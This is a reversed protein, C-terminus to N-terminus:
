KYFSTLDKLESQLYGRWGYEELFGYLIAGFVIKPGDIYYPKGINFIGVLTFLGIPLLVLFVSQKVGFSFLKLDNPRKFGYIMLLGGIFPGIGQLITRLFYDANTYFDPKIITIYYRIVVAIIFYLSIFIIKKITSNM